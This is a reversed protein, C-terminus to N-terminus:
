SRGLDVRRSRFQHMALNKRYELLVEQFTHLLKEAEDTSRGNRKLDLILQKQREVIAEGGRTVREAKQLPTEQLAVEAAEPPAPPASLAATETGLQRRRRGNWMWRERRYSAHGLRPARVRRDPKERAM